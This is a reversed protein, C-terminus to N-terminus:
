AGICAPLCAAICPSLRVWTRALVCALRGGCVCWGARCALCGAVCPVVIPVGCLARPSHAGHHAGLPVGLHCALWLPIGCCLRTGHPVGRPACLHMAFCVGPMRAGPLVLPLAVRVALPLAPHVDPHLAPAILHVRAGADLFNQVKRLAVHGGGVVIVREGKLKVAIPLYDM